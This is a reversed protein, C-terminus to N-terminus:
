MIIWSRVELRGCRLGSPHGLPKLLQDQFGTVEYPAAPEFGAGEALVINYLINFSFVFYHVIIM